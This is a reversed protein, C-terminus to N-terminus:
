YNYVSDICLYEELTLGSDYVMKALEKGLYRVHWSEYKYGTIDQKGQPYRIIFGFRWCNAALWAAEPTTDFSSGAYNIDAALGTQHESHGPRASYTDAKAKGDRNVYSNYLSAQYRYSRFGSCVWLNLRKESWAANKMENFAAQTESTLAGPNYTSPLPYTKNAILIGNVYTIGNINRVQHRTFNERKGDPSILTFHHADTRSLTFYEFDGYETSGNFCLKISNGDPVWFFSKGDRSGTYGNFTWSRQGYDGSTIYEGTLESSPSLQVSVPSFSELGYDDWHLSFSDKSNWVIDAGASAGGSSFTFRGDSVSATFPTASAAAGGFIYGSGGSFWFFRVGNEGNGTWMGEPLKDGYEAIYKRELVLDFCDVVGDLNFDGQGYELGGQGLLYGGLTALDRSNTGTGLRSSGSVLPVASCCTLAAAIVTSAFRKM